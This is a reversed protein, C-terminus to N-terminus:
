KYENLKNNTIVFSDNNRFPNEVEQNILIQLM